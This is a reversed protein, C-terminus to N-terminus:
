ALAGPYRQRLAERLAGLRKREAVAAPAVVHEDMLVDRLEGSRHVELALPDLTPM